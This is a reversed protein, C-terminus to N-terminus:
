DFGSLKPPSFRFTIRIDCAAAPACDYHRVGPSAVANFPAKFGFASRAMMGRLGSVTYVPAYIPWQWCWAPERDMSHSGCAANTEAGHEPQETERGV